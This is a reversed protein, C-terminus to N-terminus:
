WSQTSSHRDVIRLRGFLIDSMLLNRRVEETGPSLIVFVELRVDDRDELLM